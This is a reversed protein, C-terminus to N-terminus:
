ATVRSWVWKGKPDTVTVGCESSLMEVIPLGRGGTGDDGGTELASADPSVDGAVTEPGRKRMPLVDSSDWVALLVGGAERSFRVRIERGPTHRIANTVLESAILTVDDCLVDLGWSVLRLEVLTRVRGPVTRAALCTLNLGADPVVHTGM